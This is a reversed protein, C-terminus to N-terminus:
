SLEADIAAIAAGIKAKAAMAEANGRVARGVILRNANILAERAQRLLATTSQPKAYAYEFVGGEDNVDKESLILSMDMWTSPGSDWIVRWAVPKADAERAILVQLYNALDLAEEQAHRLWQSTTLDSRETTVGYKHLGAESRSRLLQVVAEVNRDPAADDPTIEVEDTIDVVNMCPITIGPLKKDCGNKGCHRQHINCWYIRSPGADSM